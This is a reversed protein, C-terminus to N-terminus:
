WNVRLGAGIVYPSEPYNDWRTDNGGNINEVRFVVGLLPTVNYSAEIDLDFFAEVKRSQQRDITRSSEYHGTFQLLGRSQAFSYSLTTEGLVPAFYPIDVDEETLRGNRYTAGVMAHLGGPFVVSVSGGAYAVDAKSYQLTTIGRDFLGTDNEFYLYHPMHQYGAKVAVQVPGVFM